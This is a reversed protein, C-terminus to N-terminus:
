ISTAFKNLVVFSRQVMFSHFRWTSDDKKFLQSDLQVPPDPVIRRLVSVTNGRKFAEGQVFAAGVWIFAVIFTSYASLLLAM